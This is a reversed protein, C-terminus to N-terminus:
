ACGATTLPAGLPDHMFGGGKFYFTVSQFGVYAGFNNKANYTVCTKWGQVNGGRQIGVWVSGPTPPPVRSIQMGMPDKLSAMFYQGILAQYNDPFPGPDDSAYGGSAVSACGGVFISLAVAIAPKHM